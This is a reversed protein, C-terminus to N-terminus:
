IPVSEILQIKGIWAAEQINTIIRPLPLIIPNLFHFTEPTGYLFHFTEPMGHPSVDDQLSLSTDGYDELANKVTVYGRLICQHLAAIVVCFADYFHGLSDKILIAGCFVVTLPIVPRHYQFYSIKWKQFAGTRRISSATLSFHTKGFM